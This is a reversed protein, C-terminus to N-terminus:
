PLGLATRVGTALGTFYISLATGFAGIGAVVAIAIFGVLIGYETSTAGHEDTSLLNSIAGHRLHVASESNTM